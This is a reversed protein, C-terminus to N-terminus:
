AFFDGLARAVEDPHSDILFHGGPLPAPTITDIRDAWTAAVDYARGMAGDRGWGILTPATVRRGLDAEDLPLDLDIAARYDHCMAAICAPDRWAARYADLQAPDFDTIRAAGWGLLGSEYYYDPDAGILTEPFPAPQSLFFWHYYARAVPHTLRNLILETPVIDLLAMRTIREPADLSIRHATRGGRDHGALAFSEFGLHTMLALMDGGMHRFSYLAPDDPKSSAGYGRLDAAIVTHNRALKPGVHWWLARTQPFGHLLLLPPGSGGIDYAIEVGDHDFRATRFGDPTM